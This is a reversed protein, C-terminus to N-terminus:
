ARLPLGNAGRLVKRGVVCRCNVVEKAPVKRGDDSISAGPRQMEFHEVGVIFPQGDKVIQNDAERHDRRTRNDRAAIWIKNTQLGTKDIGFQEAVNTAKMIETRTILRARIATIDSKLIENVIEDISKGELIGKDLEDRIFDKTTDTIPLVADNLLKLEFYQLIQNIIEENFGIPQRAKQNRINLYAKHAWIRGTEVYMKKIVDAIPQMPIADIIRHQKFHLLQEKLANYVAPRFIKGKSLTFSNYLHWYQTEEAPTM